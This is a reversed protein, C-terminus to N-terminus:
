IPKIQNISLEVTSLNTPKKLEEEPEQCPSREELDSEIQRRTQTQDSTEVVPNSTSQREIKHEINTEDNHKTDSFFIGPCTETMSIKPRSTRVRRPINPNNAPLYRRINRETFGPLHDHDNHIKTLADKHTLRDILTLRNYMQPILLFARVAAPYVEQFERSLEEYSKHKYEDLNNSQRIATIDHGDKSHDNIRRISKNKAIDQTNSM